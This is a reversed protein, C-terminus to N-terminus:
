FDDFRLDQASDFPDVVNKEENVNIFRLYDIIFLVHQRCNVSIKIVGGVKHQRRNPKIKNVVDSRSDYTRMSIGGYNTQSPTQEAISGGPIKKGEYNIYGM